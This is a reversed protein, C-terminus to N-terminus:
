RKREAAATRLDTSSRAEVLLHIAVGRLAGILWGMGRRPSGDPHLWQAIACLDNQSGRPTPISEDM